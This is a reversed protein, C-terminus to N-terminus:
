KPEEVKAIKAAVNKREESTLLAAIRETGMVEKRFARVQPIMARYYDPEHGAITAPQFDPLKSKYWAVVQGYVPNHEYSMLEEATGEVGFHHKDSLCDCPRGNIRGGGQLDLEMRYLEKGLRRRLEEITDTTSALAVTARPVAVRKAEVVPAVARENKEEVRVTSRPRSVQVRIVDGLVESGTKIIYAVIQKNMGVMTLGEGM